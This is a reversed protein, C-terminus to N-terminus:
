KINLNVSTFNTVNYINTSPVSSSEPRVYIEGDSILNKIVVEYIDTATNQMYYGFRISTNVTDFLYTGTAKLGDITITGGKQNVNNHLSFASYNSGLLTSNIISYNSGSSTGCAIAASNIWTNAKNGNHRVLVNKYVHKSNSYLSNNGSEDHIVYRVNKGEVILNDLEVSGACEIVSVNPVTSATALNDPIFLKITPRGLGVIKVNKNILNLGNRNGSIASLWSDGGLEQYVDYVGKNLYITYQEDSNNPIANVADVLRTYDGTADKSVTIEYNKPDYQTYYYQNNENWLTWMRKGNSLGFLRADYTQKTFTLYLNCNISPTFTASRSGTQESLLEITGNDYKVKSFYLQANYIYYTRGAYLQIPKVAVYNESTSYEVDRTQHGYIANPIIIDSTVMEKVIKKHDEILTIMTQSNAVDDYLEDTINIQNNSISLGSGTTLKDQKLSLEDKTALSNNAISVTDNERSITLTSDDSVVQNIADTINYYFENKGKKTHVYTSQGDCWTCIKKGYNKEKRYM